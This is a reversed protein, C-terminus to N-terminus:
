MDEDNDQTALVWGKWEDSTDHFGLEEPPQSIKNTLSKLTAAHGDQKIRNYISDNGTFLSSLIVVCLIQISRSYTCGCVYMYMQSPIIDFFYIYIYIHIFSGPVCVYSCDCFLSSTSYMCVHLCWFVCACMCTSYACTYTHLYSQHGQVKRASHDVLLVIALPVSVLVCMSVHKQMYVGKGGWVGAGVCVCVHACVCLYM